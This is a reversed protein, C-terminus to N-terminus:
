VLVLYTLFTFSSAVLTTRQFTRQERLPFFCFVFFTKSPLFFSSASCFFCLPDVVSQSTCRADTSRLQFGRAWLEMCLRVKAEVMELLISESALIRAEDRDAGMQQYNELEATSTTSKSTYMGPICCPVSKLYMAIM